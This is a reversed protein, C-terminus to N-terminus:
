LLLESVEFDTVTPPFRYGRSGAAAFARGLHADVWETLAEQSEWIQILHFGDDTQGAAFVLRGPAETMAGGLAEAVAEHQEQTGQPFFALRAFAM